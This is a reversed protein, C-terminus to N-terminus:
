RLRSPPEVQAQPQRVMQPLKIGSQKTAHRVVQESLSLRLAWSQLEDAVLEKVVHNALTLTDTDGSNLTSAMSVPAHRSTGGDELAIRLKPKGSAVPLASQATQWSVPQVVVPQVWQVIGLTLSWVGIALGWFWSDHLHADAPVRASFQQAETPLQPARQVAAYAAGEAVALPSVQTM